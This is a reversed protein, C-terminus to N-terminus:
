EGEKESLKKGSLKLLENVASNASQWAKSVVHETFKQRGVTSDLAHRRRAQYEADFVRDFVKCWVTNMNEENLELM